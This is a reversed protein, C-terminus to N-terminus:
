QRHPQRHCRCLRRPLGAGAAAADRRAHGQHEARGQKDPDTSDAIHWRQIM